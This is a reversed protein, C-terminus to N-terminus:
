VAWVRVQTASFVLDWPSSGGHGAAPSGGLAVVHTHTHAGGGAGGAAAAAPSGEGRAVFGGSGPLGTVSAGGAGHHVRPSGPLSGAAARGVWSGRRAGGAFLGARGGPLARSSPPQLQYHAHAHPSELGSHAFTWPHHRPSGSLAVAAAALAQQQQHQQAHTASAPSHQPYGASPAAAITSATSPRSGFFHRVVVHQMAAADSCESDTDSAYTRPTDLLSPFAAAPHLHPAHAFTQSTHASLPPRLALPPATSPRRAARQKPPISLM